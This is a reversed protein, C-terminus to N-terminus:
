CYQNPRIMILGNTITHANVPPGSLAEICLITRDTQSVPSSVDIAYAAFHKYYKVVKIRECILHVSECESLLVIELIKYILVNEPCTIDLYQCIFYGTKYTKSNYVCQSYCLFNDSNMNKHTCFTKILEEYKSLIIHKSNMAYIPEEPQILYNAFKLQYKRAISVCINRRSTISHAYAKFEKHKAEFRFSWYYRPPGSQLIIDFYHVMIHFKAKLTDNFFRVYDTNHQKILFRLREALVNSIEFFLLIDIIELLNLFFLWVHDDQPVLDGVMLSFLHMFCMMERATMKLHFKALHAETIEPSVNGVEIEGYNFMQKRANLTKLSFYKSNMLHNIIHCMDYHCVGEFIDHMIDVAFNTTVHFSHISNLISLEKIGTLSMNNADVDEDYNFLNRSLNPDNTTMTHTSIKSAKCFRCFYNHNFSSTFGLVTNLGLNDGLVLSLVFYINKTGEATEIFIGDEELTKIESILSRLCKENGYNKYDSGQITAALFVETNKFIPFSYYIFTVPNAHPGLPNNVESDDIYLFFPLVTKGDNMFSQTKQRWLPGSLFHNNIGQINPINEIHRLAKLLLNNKEFYRRFQFSLPLLVGTVDVEDYHIEGRSYKESIERSIIFEKFNCMFNKEQLWSFLQYEKECSRFPHSIEEKLMTLLLQSEIACSFTTSCFNKEFFQTVSSVIPNVINQMVSKQVEFVNKRTFNNNSHLKLAFKVGEHELPIDHPFQLTLVEDLPLCDSPNILYDGAPETTSSTNSTPSSIPSSVFSAPPSYASFSQVNEVFNMQNQLPQAIEMHRKVHRSLSSLLTFCQNCNGGFTCIYDSRESLSHVLRFHYSM